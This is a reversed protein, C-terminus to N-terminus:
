WPPRSGNLLRNVRHRLALIFGGLTKKRPPCMHNADDNRLVDSNQTVGEGGDEAKFVIEVDHGGDLPPVLHRAGSDAYAGVNGKEVDRQGADVAQGGGRPQTLQQGDAPDQHEGAHRPRAIQPAGQGRLHGTEEQLVRRRLLEHVGNALDGGAIANHVGRERHPCQLRHGAWEGLPLGVHQPHGGRPRLRLLDGSSQREAQARDAVIEGGRDHLEAGPIADVGDADGRVLAPELGTGLPIETTLVHVDGVVRRDMWGRLVRVRAALSETGLGRSGADARAGNNSLVMRVHNGKREIRIACTDGRSHRLINTVGERLLAALETQVRPPMPVPTYHARVEFGGAELLSRASEFDVALSMRRYGYAVTRIDDLAERAAAVGEAMEREARARDVTLLRGALGAKLVIVSLSYGFLDHLDRAFRLRERTVETRALEERLGRLECTMRAMRALGYVVLAREGGWVVRTLQDFLEAEGLGGGWLLYLANQVLLLGTSAWRLWGRLLILTLGPLFAVVHWTQLGFYAVPAVAIVAQILLTWPWRSPRGGTRGPLCHWMHLGTFSVLLLGFAWGGAVSLGAEVAFRVAQPVIMLCVTVSGLVVVYAPRLDDAPTRGRAHADRRAHSMARAEDLTSQATDLARDLEGRAQAPDPSAMMAEGAAIVTRLSNGVRGNLEDAFARRERRVEATALEARADYREAVLDAVRVSGYLAMAVFATQGFVLNAVEGPSPHVTWWSWGQAVLVGAFGAWGAWGAWGARAPRALLLISAALFGSIGCWSGAQWMLGGGTLAVQALLSWRWGRPRGGRTPLVCTYLHLSLMAAQVTIGAILAFGPPATALLGALGGLAFGASVVVAVLRALRLASVPETLFRRLADSAPTM